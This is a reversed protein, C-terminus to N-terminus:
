REPKPPPPTTPQAARVSGHWVEQRKAAGLGAIARGLMIPWAMSDWFGGGADYCGLAIGIYIMVLM